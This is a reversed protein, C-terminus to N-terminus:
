DVKSVKVETTQYEQLTYQEYIYKIVYYGMTTTYTSNVACYKGLQSLSVINDSIGYIFEKQM